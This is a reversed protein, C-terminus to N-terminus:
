KGQVHTAEEEHLLSTYFFLLLMNFYVICKRNAFLFSDFFFIKMLWARPMLLWDCLLLRRSWAVEGALYLSLGM